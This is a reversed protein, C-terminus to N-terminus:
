PAFKVIKGSKIEKKDSSFVYFYIGSGVIKGNQDQGNWIIKNKGVLDFTQIQKGLTDFIRLQLKKTFTNNKVVFETYELFPNPQIKLDLQNELNETTTIECVGFMNQDMWHLRETIWNKLYDIEEQYTNGIFQNPWVYTGLTPWRDFNREQANSLFAAQEDIFQLITDRHFAGERLESWRCKLQNQFDPDELLRNWWFPQSDECGPDDVAWGSTIWGTCYDANGYGLNFDWLPGANLKGGNSDRDKFLFASLRYADVEKSLEVALFYDVFSAVDIYSPYGSDPDTFDVGNLAGEFATIYNRIYVRQTATLDSGNPHHYVIFPFPAFTSWWGNNFEERDVQVIYGGTLSDGANDDEDLRAIDVRDNDRKIKEMLIYVGRYDDNIYLDCYRTRPAWRGMKNGLHFALVNRILTKDTYPGHLIWDNEQPMGLLSVNNNEGQSDQTEFGYNKKPFGQSSSGRTEIAIQGDYGNFADTFVNNVNGVGNDIIGMHAVIKPEDPIEQGMTSIKIIPLDSEFSPVYFWDPTPNYNQTSNNLAVSFFFISSLDSSNIGSNHVQIALTNNGNQLCQNIKDKSLFNFEPLGGQYMQAERFSSAPTDFPPLNGEINARAIEIGNLYAVFADDYDAHLIALELDDVDVVDFTKRLYVSHTPPVITNDDGDDYGFGGQGEAWASDDFTLTQWDSPPESNGVRYKWNDESFIITEWHDINQSQSKQSFFIVASLLLIIKKM